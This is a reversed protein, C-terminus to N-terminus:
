TKVGVDVVEGGVDQTKGERRARAKVEAKEAMWGRRARKAKEVKEVVEETFKGKGRVVDRMLMGEVEKIYKDLEMRWGGSTWDGGEGGQAARWFSTEAQIDAAWEM